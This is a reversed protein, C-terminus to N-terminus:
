TIIVIVNYFYWIINNFNFSKLFVIQYPATVYQSTYFDLRPDTTKTTLGYENYTVEHVLLISDIYVGFIM